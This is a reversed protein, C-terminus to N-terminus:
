HEIWENSFEIAETHFKIHLLFFFSVSVSLCLSVSVCMYIHMSYIEVVAYGCLGAVGLEMKNENLNNYISWFEGLELTNIWKPESVLSKIKFDNPQLMKWKWFFFWCWQHDIRSPPSLYIIIAQVITYNLRKIFGDCWMMANWYKTGFNQKTDCCSSNHILHM